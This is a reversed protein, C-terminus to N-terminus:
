IHPQKNLKNKQTLVNYCCFLLEAWNSLIIIEDNSVVLDLITVLEKVEEEHNEVKKKTM